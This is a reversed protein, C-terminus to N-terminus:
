AISSPSTKAVETNSAFVLLPHRSGLKLVRVEEAPTLAVNDCMLESATFHCFLAQGM